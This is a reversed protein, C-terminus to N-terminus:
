VVDDDSQGDTNKGSRYEKILSASTTVIVVANAAAGIYNMILVNFVGYMVVNLILSYKLRSVSDRFRFIAVSYELNAIIPLWGILGRNNFVIGLVVGLLILTWEAAKSRINRIAALNRLIAVLNQVTSSYGKLIISGAAYFVQSIIQFAMIQSHKRRTGSISDTVMACLSCINGAIVEYATM